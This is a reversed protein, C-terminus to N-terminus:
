YPVIHLHPKVWVQVHIFAPVVRCLFQHSVEEHQCTIGGPWKHLHVLPYGDQLRLDSKFSENFDYIGDWEGIGVQCYDLPSLRLQTQIHILLSDM